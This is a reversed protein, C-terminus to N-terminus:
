PARQGSMRACICHAKWVANGALYRSFRQCCSCAVAASSAIREGRADMSAASRAWTEENVSPLLDTQVKPTELVVSMQDTDAYGKQKVESDKGDDEEEEQLHTTPSPVSQPPSVEESEATIPDALVAQIPIEEQAARPDEEVEEGFDEDLAQQQAAASLQYQAHATATLAAQRSRRHLVRPVCGLILFEIIIIISYYWCCARCTIIITTAIIIDLFLPM